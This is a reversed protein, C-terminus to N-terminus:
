FIDATGNGYHMDFDVIMVTKREKKQIKRIAFAINNIYCFGAFYDRGAHHGPPRVAAFAFKEESLEAAKYAAGAALKAIGYTSETFKNDPFWSQRKSLNELNALHKKTHVLELEHEDAREPEVFEAQGSGRLTKCIARLREPSEPHGEGADHRLFKDSYVVYFSM